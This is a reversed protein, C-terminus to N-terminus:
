RPFHGRFLGKISAVSVAIAEGLHWDEMEEEDGDDLASGLEERDGGRTVEDEQGGQCPQVVLPQGDVDGNM